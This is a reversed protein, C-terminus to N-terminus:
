GNKKSKFHLQLRIQSVADASEGNLKFHIITLSSNKIEIYNNQNKLNFDQWSLSSKLIFSALVPSYRGHFYQEICFDSQIYLPGQREASCLIQIQHLACFWQRTSDLHILKPLQIFFSQATNSPYVILSDKESVYLTFQKM